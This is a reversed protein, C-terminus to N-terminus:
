YPMMYQNPNTYMGPGGGGYMPPPGANYMGPGGGYMGPGGGYQGSPASYMQPGQPYMNQGQPYQGYPSHGGSVGCCRTEQGTAADLSEADQAIVCISCCWTCFCSTLLNQRASGLKPNLETYWSTLCLTCFPCCTMALLGLWYDMTGTKDFTHAARAQPCVASLLCNTPSSNMAACPAQEQQLQYSMPNPGMWYGYRQVVTFYYFAAFILQFVPVLIRLNRPFIKNTGDGVNTFVDAINNWHHHRNDWANGLHNGIHNGLNGAHHSVHGWAASAHGQVADAYEDKNDWLHNGLRGGHHSVHGWAQSATDKVNDAYEDKNDWLHNGLRSGHHSVHGWAQGGIESAKDKVNNAYEGGHESLHNGINSAHNSLGAGVDDFDVLRREGRLSGGAAPKAVLNVVGASDLVFLSGVIATTGVALLPARIRSVM